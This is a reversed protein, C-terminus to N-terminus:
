IRRIELPLTEFGKPRNSAEAKMFYAKDVTGTTFLWCTDYSFKSPDGLAGETILRIGNVKILKSNRKEGAERSLWGLHEADILIEVFRARSPKHKKWAMFLAEQTHQPAPYKYVYVFLMMALYSHNRRLFRGMRDFDTAGSTM